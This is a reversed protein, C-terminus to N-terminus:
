DEAPVVKGDVVENDLSVLSLDLDPFLCAFQERAAEFGAALIQASNLKLDEIQKQLEEIRKKLDETQEKLEKNQQELEEVQKKLQANTEQAQLLDEAVKKSEAQAQGLEAALEGKEKNADALEAMADDRAKEVQGLLKERDASRQELKKVKVADAKILAELDVVKVRYPVIKSELEIKEHALQQVKHRLDTAEKRALRLETSMADEVRSHEIEALTLNASLKEVEVRITSNETKLTFLDDQLKRTSSEVARTIITPIDEAITKLKASLPEWMRTVELPLNAAQLPVLHAQQQNEDGGEKAPEEAPVEPRPSSMPSETILIPSTHAVEDGIPAAEVASANSPPGGGASVYPTSASPPDEMFNQEPAEVAPPAIALPIAQVPSAPAQPPPSSPPPAPTTPPTSTPLPPPAPPSSPAVRKRKTVLGDETAEDDEEEEEHIVQPAKRKPRKLVLKKRQAAPQVDSPAPGKPPSRGQAVAIEVVSNPVTQSGTALGHTRALARLEALMGKGLMNDACFSFAHTLEPLFHTCLATHLLLASLPHLFIFGFDQAYRM